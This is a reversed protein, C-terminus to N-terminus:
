QNLPAPTYFIQYQTQGGDVSIARIHLQTKYKRQIAELAADSERSSLECAVRQVDLFTKEAEARKDQAQPTSAEMGVPAADPVAKIQKRQRTM